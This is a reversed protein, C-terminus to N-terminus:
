FQRLKKYGSLSSSIDALSQAVQAAQKDAELM